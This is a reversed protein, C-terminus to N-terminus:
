VKDFTRVNAKGHAKKSIYKEKSITLPQAVAVERGDFASQALTLTRKDNQEIEDNIPKVLVQYATAFPMSM